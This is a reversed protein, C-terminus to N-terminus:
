SLGFRLVSNEESKENCKLPWRIKWLCRWFKMPIWRKDPNQNINFGILINFIILILLFNGLEAMKKRKEFSKIDGLMVTKLYDYQEVLVDIDSQIHKLLEHVRYIDDTYQKFGLEIDLVLAEHDSSGCHTYLRKSGIEELSM